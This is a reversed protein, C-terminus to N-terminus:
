SNIKKFLFNLSLGIYHNKWADNGETNILNTIGQYYNIRLKMLKSFQLGTGFTIGSSFNKLQGEDSGMELEITTEDIKTIARFNYELSLGGDVFLQLKDGNLDITYGMLVPVDFSNIAWTEDAFKFGKQMYLGAIRLYLNESFNYEGVYGVRPGWANNTEINEEDINFDGNMLNAGIEFGHSM